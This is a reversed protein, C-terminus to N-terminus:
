NVEMGLLDDMAKRRREIKERIAKVRDLIVDLSVPTYDIAEVSVNLYEPLPQPQHHIHGHVNLVCSSPFNPRLIPVHTCVFGEKGFVWWLQIKQFCDMLNTGKIWDHNGILLRKSGNLRAMLGALQKGYVWSVDGLHYVKDGPKVVANWRAIMAENMEDVSSFDRVPWGDSRKFTLIREDFFHTDSVFFINAM